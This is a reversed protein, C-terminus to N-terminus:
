DPKRIELYINVGTIDSIVKSKERGAEAPCLDFMQESNRYILPWELIYELWHQIPNSADVNTVVCLGGPAVMDYLVQILQKSVANTLYDLLGACYVFDYQQAPASAVGRSKGKLLQVVSKKVFQIRTKRAYRHRCDEIVKQGYRLTEENFDLLMLEASNSLVSQALFDQVEKAPGSGVNLVRLKKDAATVRLTEDCLRETLYKVRNRHAEAPPQKVFWRNLIRAYLSGGEHPDRLIMNVIEYDGAYGLPKTVSRFAFPASLLLPQLQRRAYVQHVPQLDKEVLGAISEFKEFLADLPLFVEPSLRDAIERELESRNADPSSRISLEVQELWLRLDTLFTQMDAVVTKYDPLVKYSKQWEQLFDGFKQHLLGNKMSAPDLQLDMWCTEELAAECILIEGANMLNRVTARGSYITREHFVIKLDPLVESVRLIGASDHVEFVVIFRNLKALACRLEPGNVTRCLVLTAAPDMKTENKEM